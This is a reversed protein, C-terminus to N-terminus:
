EKPPQSAYGFLNKMLTDLGMTTLYDALRKRIESARAETFGEATVETVGIFEIADSIAEQEKTM